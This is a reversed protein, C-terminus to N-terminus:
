THALPVNDSSSNLTMIYKLSVPNMESPIDRGLDLVKSAADIADVVASTSSSMAALIGCVYMATTHLV